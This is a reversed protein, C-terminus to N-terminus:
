VKVRVVWVGAGTALHIVAGAVTLVLYGMRLDSPLGSMAMPVNTLLLAGSRQICRVMYERALLDQKSSPKRKM